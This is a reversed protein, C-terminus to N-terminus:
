PNRTCKGSNHNYTITGVEVNLIDNIDPVFGMTKILAFVRITANPFKEALRSAGAISTRGLTLVDDVLTINQTPVYNEVRMSDFQEAVSPRQDANYILSSKRIAEHRILCPAVIGLKLSTLLKCIELAPWLDTDRVISSRPAPVLTVNENLFDSLQEQNQTTIQSIRKRYQEIRGAKITGVVQRSKESKESKGRPSYQLLNAYDVSDLM